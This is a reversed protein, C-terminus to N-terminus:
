LQEWVHGAIGMDIIRPVSTRGADMDMLSELSDRGAITAIEIFSGYAHDLFAIVEDPDRPLQRRGFYRATYRGDLPVVLDPLLHHLLKSATM